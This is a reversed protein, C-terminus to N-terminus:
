KELTRYVQSRSLGAQLMLVRVSQRVTLGAELNARHASCMSADRRQAQWRSRRRPIRIVVGPMTAILELQIEVPLEHFRTM